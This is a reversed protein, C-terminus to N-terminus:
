RGPMKETFKEGKEECERRLRGERDQLPGWESEITEGKAISEEQLIRLRRIPTPPKKGGKGERTDKDKGKGKDGEKNGTLRPAPTRPARYDQIYQQMKRDNVKEGNEKKREQEAEIARRRQIESAYEKDKEETSRAM